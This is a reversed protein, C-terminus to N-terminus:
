VSYLEARRDKYAPLKKRVEDVRDLDITAAILTPVEGACAVPVGMPDIVVSEGMSDIECLDCACMYVTNEIARANILTHFQRSKLDGKVWATPMIIIDAGMKREYRAVEPFRVEYCVFLGIKGFPTEIPEFLKDGPKKNASEKYGFADYLHTKRYTSVIQGDSDLIVTTNYNRDDDPDEVKENMGFVIWIKNDKALQRMGSVFPGDLNQASGLSISRETGNPFDSMFLEPFIMLDPHYMEVAESVKEQAAKLNIEPNGEQKMQALVFTSKRKM